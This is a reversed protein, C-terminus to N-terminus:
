LRGGLQLLEDALVGGPLHALLHLEGGFLHDDDTVAGAARGESHELVLDLALVPFRHFEVDLFGLAQALAALRELDPQLIEGHGPARRDLEGPRLLIHFARRIWGPPWALSNRGRAANSSRCSM